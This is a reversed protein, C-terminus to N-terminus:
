ELHSVAVSSEGEALAGHSVGAPHNGLEVLDALESLREITQKVSGTEAVAAGVLALSFGIPSSLTGCARDGSTIPALQDRWPGPSVNLALRHNQNDCTFNAFASGAGGPASASTAQNVFVQM